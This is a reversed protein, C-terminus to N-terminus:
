SLDSNTFDAIKIAAFDLYFFLAKLLQIIETKFNKKHFKKKPLDNKAFHNKFKLGSLSSIGMCM